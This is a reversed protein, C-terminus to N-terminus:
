AWYLGKFILIVNTCPAVNKYNLMAGLKNSSIPKFKFKEAQSKKVFAHRDIENMLKYLKFKDTTKDNGSDPVFPSEFAYTLIPSLGLKHNLM